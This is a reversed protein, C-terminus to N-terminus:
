FSNWVKILYAHGNFKKLKFGKPTLNQPRTRWSMLTAHCCLQWTVEAVVGWLVGWSRAERLGLEFPMDYIEAVFHIEAHSSCCHGTYLICIFNDLGDQLWSCRMLPEPGERDFHDSYLAYETDPGLRQGFFISWCKPWCRMCIDASFQALKQLLILFQSTPRTLHSHTIGNFDSRSPFQSSQRWSTIFIALKGDWRM